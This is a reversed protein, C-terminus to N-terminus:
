SCWVFFILYTIIPAGGNYCPHYEYSDSPVRVVLNCSSGDVYALQHHFTHVFGVSGLGVWGWGIWDLWVWGLRVWGLGVWGLEVSGLGVWGLGM